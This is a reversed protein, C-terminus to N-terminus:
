QSAPFDLLIEPELRLHLEDWDESSQNGGENEAHAGPTPCLDSWDLLKTGSGQSHTSTLCVVSLDQGSRRTECVLELEKGTQSIHCEMNGFGNRTQDM